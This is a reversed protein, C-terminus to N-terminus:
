SDTEKTNISDYINQFSVKKAEIMKSVVDCAIIAYELKVGYEKSISRALSVSDTSKIENDMWDFVAQVLAQNGSFMAQDESMEEKVKTETEEDYFAQGENMMLMSDDPIYVDQNDDPVDVVKAERLPEDKKSKRPM